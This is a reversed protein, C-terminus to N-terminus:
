CKTKGNIDKRMVELWVLTSSTTLPDHMRTKTSKGVSRGRGLLGRKNVLEQREESNLRFTMGQPHNTEESQEGVRVGHEQPASLKELAIVLHEQIIKDPPSWHLFNESKFDKGQPM